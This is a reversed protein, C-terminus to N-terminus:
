LRGKALSPTPAFRGRRPSAMGCAEDCGDEDPSLTQPRGDKRWTPGCERMRVRNSLGAEEAKNGIQEKRRYSRWAAVEAVM